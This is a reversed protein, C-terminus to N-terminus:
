PRTGTSSHPTATGPPGCPLIAQLMAQLMAEWDQRDKGSM